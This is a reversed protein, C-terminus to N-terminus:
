LPAMKSTQGKRTRPNSLWLGWRVAVVIRCGIQMKCATEWVLSNYLFELDPWTNGKVTWLVYDRYSWNRLTTVRSEEKSKPHQNIQVPQSRSLGLLLSIFVVGLWVNLYVCLVYMFCHRPDHFVKPILTTKYSIKKINRQTGKPTTSNGKHTKKKEGSLYIPKFLTMLYYRRYELCWALHKRYM